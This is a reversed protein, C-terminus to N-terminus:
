ALRAWLEVDEFRGWKRVRRRMLGESVFGLKGLVRGSAPNRTMFHAVLRTLGLTTFAHEVLAGAAEGAYGHGRVTADFWFTLEGQGHAHEIHRLGVCGILRSTEHAVVAYVQQEPLCHALDDVIWARAGEVDLPYPVTVTTDAVSRDGAVRALDAADALEFGRLLLRSTALPAVPLAGPVAATMVEREVISGAEVRIRDIFRVCQRSGDRLRGVFDGTVVGWAGRDWVQAVRHMGVVVAREDRYHREIAARGRCTDGAPKRYEADDAFLATVGPWDEDDIARLLRLAISSNSDM